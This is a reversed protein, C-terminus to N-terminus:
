YLGTWGDMIIIIIIIIIVIIIIIIIIIVIIIFLDIYRKNGFSLSSLTFHKNCHVINTILILCSRSVIVIDNFINFSSFNWYCLCTVENYRFSKFNNLIDSLEKEQDWFLLQSTFCSWTVRVHKSVYKFFLPSRFCYFLGTCLFVQNTM